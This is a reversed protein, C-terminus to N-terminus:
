PRRGGREALRERVLGGGGLAAIGAGPLYLWEGFPIGVLSVALGAALAVTAWSLDPVARVDEPPRRRVALVLGLLLTGLVAGGLLGYSFTEAAFAFQVGTLGALFLAWLLVPAAERRM